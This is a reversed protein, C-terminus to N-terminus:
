GALVSFLTQTIVATLIFTLTAVLSRASFRAVGCIGHGSTCGSGIRTGVGVLLGAIAYVFWPSALEVPLPQGWVWPYIAGGVVLSLVFVLRWMRQGAEGSLMGGVIGSIGTIRGIGLFMLVSAIGILIGGSFASLFSFEAM